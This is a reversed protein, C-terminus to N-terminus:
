VYEEAYLDAILAAEGPLTSTALVEIMDVEPSVPKVQVYVERLREVVELASLTKGEDAEAQLVSLPQNTGPVTQTNLLRRAVSLAIARSKLIEIENLVNRNSTEFGLLEGLQPTSQQANVYLMSEARYKPDQQFTYLAVAALVVAFCVLIIWKGKLLIEILTACPSRM